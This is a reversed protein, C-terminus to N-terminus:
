LSLVAPLFFYQIQFSYKNQKKTSVDFDIWDIRNINTLALFFSKTKNTKQKNLNINEDCRIYDEAVYM